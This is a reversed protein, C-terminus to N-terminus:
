TTLAYGDFHFTEWHSLYTRNLGIRGNESMDCCLFSAQHRLGFGSGPASMFDFVSAADINSVGQFRNSADIRLWSIQDADLAGLRALTGRIHLVVRVTAPSLMGSRMTPSDRDMLLNLGNFTSVLWDPGPDQNVGHRRSDNVVAAQECRFIALEEDTRWAWRHRPETKLQDFIPANHRVGDMDPGKDLGSVTLSSTILYPCFTGPDGGALGGYGCSIMRHSHEVHEFGYRRFRTDMFGVTDLSQRTFASCQGTLLRSVYPDDVTGAGSVNRETWHSPYLNVHGYRIAADIWATEWGDANPYTDDELLIIIDSRRIQNLYFLARNKNWAIGRNSATLHTLRMEELMAGTGDSSGDDAVFLVHPYQTHIRIAEITRRLMEARNFTTIGIGLTPRPEVNSTGAAGHAKTDDSPPM